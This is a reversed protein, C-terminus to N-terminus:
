AEQMALDYYKGVEVDGFSTAIKTVVISEDERAYYDLITGSAIGGFDGQPNFVAGNVPQPQLHIVFYGGNDNIETCKLTILQEM